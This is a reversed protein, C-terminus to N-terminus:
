YFTVHIEDDGDSSVRALNFGFDMARNGNRNSFPAGTYSARDAQIRIQNGRGGRKGVTVGMQSTEGRRMRSWASFKSPKDTEPNCGATAQRGTIEVFNFAEEANINDNPGVTNGMDFTFQQAIAAATSLGTLALESLEVKFVQSNEFQVGSPIPADIPDAYLGTFTWSIMPYQAAQGTMSWTGRAGRIRYLSGDLYAWITLSSVNDSVPDYRVGPRRLQVEFGEGAIVPGTLFPHTIVAGSQGLNITQSGTAVSTQVVGAAMTVSVVGAAATAALRTDPDIVAAVATAIAAPLAAPGGAPVQYYFRVGGVFIEFMDFELFTGSFTFTPAILTGGVAVLGDVSNTWVKHELSDLTSADGEHHGRGTVVFAATGAAGGTVYTVRYRDFRSTPMTTKAVAGIATLIGTSSNIAHGVPTGISAAATEPVTTEAMGCAKYLRGIRPAVGFTGSARAETSFTMQGLVRGVGAADPSLSASYNERQLTDANTQVDFNSCLIADTAKPLPNAGAIQAALISDLGYTSEIRALLLTKREKQSM